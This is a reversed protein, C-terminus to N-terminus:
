DTNGTFRSDTWVLIKKLNKKFNKERLDSCQSFSSFTTIIEYPLCINQSWFYRSPGTKFFCNYLMCLKLLSDEYPAQQYEAKGKLWHERYFSFWDLGFNEEFKEQFKKREFGSCLSFSSFTTIIEYNFVFTTLGFTAVQAPGIFCNNWQSLM